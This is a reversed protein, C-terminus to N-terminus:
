NSIQKLMNERVDLLVQITQTANILEPNELTMEILELKQKSSLEDDAVEVTTVTTTAVTTTTILQEAQLKVTEEFIDQLVEADEEETIGAVSEDFLDEAKNILLEISDELNDLDSIENLALGANVEVEKSQLSEILTDIKVLSVYADQNDSITEAVNDDIENASILLESVNEELVKYFVVLSEQSVKGKQYLDELEQRRKEILEQHFAVEKEKTTFLLVVEETIGTKVGYLFEGPLSTESFAYTLPTSILLFLVFAVAMYKFQFIFPTPIVFSKSSEKTIENKSESFVEKMLSRKMLTKEKQSLQVAEYKKKASVFVADNYSDDLKINKQQEENKM